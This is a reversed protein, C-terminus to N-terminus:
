PASGENSVADPGHWLIWDALRLVVVAERDKGPEAHIVLATRTPYTRSLDDLYTRAQRVSFNITKKTQAAFNDGVVDDRGGLPGTRRGGLKVAVTREFTAGRNKNGRNRRRVVEDRKKGCRSCEALPIYTDIGPEGTPVVAVFEHRYCKRGTDAIFMAQLAQEEKSARDFTMDSRYAQQTLITLVMCIHLRQRIRGRM